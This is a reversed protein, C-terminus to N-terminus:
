REYNSRLTGGIHRYVPTMIHATLLGLNADKIKCQMHTEDHRPDTGFPPEKLPGVKNWFEKRILIPNNNYGNPLDSVWFRHGSKTTREWLNVDSRSLLKENCSWPNYEPKRLGYNEHPDNPDRLQVVAVDPNENMIDVAHRLFDFTFDINVWDDEHIMFFQGRSLSILQNLGNNIGYNGNPVIMVSREVNEAHSKIIAMAEDHKVNDDSQDLFLWEIEGAYDKVGDFTSALSPRLLNARGCSLVCVSVLGPECFPDFDKFYRKNFDWKNGAETRPSTTM